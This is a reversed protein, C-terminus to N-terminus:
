CGVCRARNTPPYSVPPKTKWSVDIDNLIMNDSWGGIQDAVDKRICMIVGSVTFLTGMISQSRKILGIISSFEAVQLKGLVTSRNRVRPNGTAAGLTPDSEMTQM